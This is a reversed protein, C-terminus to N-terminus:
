GYRFLLLALVLLGGSGGALGAFMTHRRTKKNYCDVFTMDKFCQEPDPLKEGGGLIKYPQACPCSTRSEKTMVALVAFLVVGVVGVIAM